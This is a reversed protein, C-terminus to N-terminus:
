YASKLPKLAEGRQGTLVFEAVQGRPDVSELVQELAAAWARPVDSRGKGFWPMGDGRGFTSPHGRPSRRSILPLRSPEAMISDWADRRGPEAARGSAMRSLRGAVVDGAARGCHGISANM